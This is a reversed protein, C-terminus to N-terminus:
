RPTSAAGELIRRAAAPDSTVFGVTIENGTMGMPMIAEINVGADALRRAAQALSGPQDRLPAAVIEADTFRVGADGLAARTGADDETVIAIRGGGGTAAAAVNRINIGRKAIAEAVTALAGPQNEMEVLFANM